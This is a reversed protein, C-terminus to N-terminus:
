KSLNESARVTVSNGEISITHRRGLIALNKLTLKKWEKPLNPAVSLVKGNKLPTSWKANPAEKDDIRIGAFGYLVANLSGAAGTTFYTRSSGRKESFLLFPPKVFPKWSAHWAAYAKETEGMRAWILAHVSDSMAPGNKTVKDAFREMMAKAQAEAPPYQLPWISLVAAAQKYGRLGDNDYTLFLPKHDTAQPKDQPLKYTPKAPWQGGNKPHRGAGEGGGAPSATQSCWMALLNTYLDNDGIHNEDPSMTGKIERLGSANKVSRLRYYEAVERKLQDAAGTPVLGLDAAQSVSWAVSGSIHDQFRSPGPVTEKGTVSSEWPFKMAVPLDMKSLDERRIPKGMLGKGTPKGAVVWDVYNELAANAHRLRYDPIVKAREPDILALAPFVWIDADWFVHGGYIDSSLGMPSVSMKGKPHISSRLYFLASRIFQQDEVPGDIEIDTQWAKSWHTKAAAAIADYRNTGPPQGVSSVQEFTMQQSPSLEGNWTLRYGVKGPPEKVFHWSGGIPPFPFFQVFVELGGYYQARFLLQPKSQDAQYLHVMDSYELELKSTRRGKFIWKRAFVKKDPSICSRLELSAKDSGSSNWTSVVEGTKLDLKSSYTASTRPDLIAGNVTAQFQM